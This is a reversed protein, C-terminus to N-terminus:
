FSYALNSGFGGIRDFIGYKFGSLSEICIYIYICIQLCPFVGLFTSPTLIIGLTLDENENGLAM